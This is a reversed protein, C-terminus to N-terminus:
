RAALPLTPLLPSSFKCMPTVGVLPASVGAFGSGPKVEPKRANNFYIRTFISLPPPNQAHVTDIWDVLVDPASVSRLVGALLRTETVLPFATLGSVVLGVAFVVLWVRIRTIVSMISFKPGGAGSLRGRVCM